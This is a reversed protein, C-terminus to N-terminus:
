KIDQEAYKNRLKQMTSQGDLLEGNDAQAKGELIKTYMNIRAFHEEYAQMSMIVM